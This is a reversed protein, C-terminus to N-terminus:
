LFPFSLYPHAEALLLYEPQRQKPAAALGPQGELRACVPVRHQGSSGCLSAHGPLRSGGVSSNM